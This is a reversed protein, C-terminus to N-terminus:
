QMLRDITSEIEEEISVTEEFVRVFNASVWGEANDTKIKVWEDKEELFEYIDGAQLADIVPANLNPAERYNLGTPGVNLIEVLIFEKDKAEVDEDDETEITEIEERDDEEPTIEVTEIKSLDDSYIWGEKGEDLQVRVWGSRQGTAKYRAGPEAQGIIESEQGPGEYVLCEAIDSKVIAVDATKVQKEQDFQLLIRNKLPQIPAPVPLYILYYISLGLLILGAIMIFLSVLLVSRFSEKQRKKVQSKVEEPLLNIGTGIPDKVLSRLGLGIVNSYLISEKETLLNKHDIKALPNGIKVKVDKIREDFFDVINPLLATGGALIIEKVDSDFKARYYKRASEIEKIIKEGHEELISFTKGKPDFGEKQKIAEAKEKSIEMEQAVKKTFYYGAYPLSVSVALFGKKNFISLVTTRAGMDLIMREKKDTLKTKAEKTFNKIPLLARGISMGEIDFAVPEINTSKFFYIYTDVIDRLAAVCLIKVEEDEEDSLEIYDWYLEEHDFPITNKVEELIQKYLNQRDKFTFIQVYTKSDPLSVIAKHDKKQLVIPKKKRTHEPVHLPQPKANQLTEKLTESLVKQNLIEGNQIIGEDLISRGYSTITGKKDLLLVEISHDSIDVSVLLYRTASLLEGIFKSQKIASIMRSFWSIQNKKKQIDKDASKKKQKSDKHLTDEARVDERPTKSDQIIKGLIQTADAGRKLAEKFVSAKQPNAEIIKALIQKDSAGRERAKQITKVINVM